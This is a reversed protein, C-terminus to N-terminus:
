QCDGAACETLSFPPLCSSDNLTQQPGGACSIATSETITVRAVETGALEKVILIQAGGGGLLPTDMLYCNMGDTKVFTTAITNTLAMVKARVKVQNAYCRNVLTGSTQQTCAGMPRCSEVLQWLRPCTVGGCTAGVPPTDAGPATDAPSTDTAPSSDPPRDAGAPVDSKPGDLKADTGSGGTSGGMGSGGTGSGGAGGGGGGTSGGGSGGSGGQSAGGSGGQGQGGSGGQSGGAGGTEDGSGASGSSGAQGESGGAAAGDLKPRPSTGGCGAGVLLPCLLLALLCSRFAHAYRPKAARLGDRSTRFGRLTGNNVVHAM